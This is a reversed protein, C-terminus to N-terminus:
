RDMKRDYREGDEPTVVRSPARGTATHEGVDVRRECSVALRVRMSMELWPAYM